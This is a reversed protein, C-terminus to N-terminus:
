TQPQKNTLFYVRKRLFVLSTSFSFLHWLIDFISTLLRQCWLYFDKIDFISLRQHRMFLAMDHHQSLGFLLFFFLQGQLMQVQLIFSQTNTFKHEATRVQIDTSQLVSKQWQPLISQAMLLQGLNVSTVDSAYKVLFPSLLYVQPFSPPYKTARSSRSIPVM